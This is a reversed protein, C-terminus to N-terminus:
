RFFITFRDTQGKEFLFLAFSMESDFERLNEDRNIKALLFALSLLLLSAPVTASASTLAVIVGAIVGHSTNTHSEHRLVNPLM